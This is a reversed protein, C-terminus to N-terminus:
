LFFSDSECACDNRNLNESGDEDDSGCGCDDNQNATPPNPNESDCGCDGTPPNAPSPSDSECGCDGSPTGPEAEDECGCDDPEQTAEEHHGEHAHHHEEQEPEPKTEPSPEPKTEPSPEPKHGPAPRHHIHHHNHAAPVDPRGGNVFCHKKKHGVLWFLKEILDLKYHNKAYHCSSTRLKAGELWGTLMYIEGIQLKLGCATPDRATYITLFKGKDKFLHKDDLYKENLNEATETINSVNTDNKDANEKNQIETVNMVRIEEKVIEAKNKITENMIETKSEKITKKTTAETTILDSEEDESIKHQVYGLPTKGITKQVEVVYCIDPSLHPKSRQPVNPGYHHEHVHVELEPKPKVHHILHRLGQNHGSGCDHDIRIVKVKMAWDSDCFHEELNKHICKCGFTIVILCSFIFFRM